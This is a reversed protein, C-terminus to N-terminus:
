SAPSDEDETDHRVSAPNLARLQEQARLSVADALEPTDRWLSVLARIRDATTVRDAYRAGALADFDDQTLDITIRKPYGAPRFNHGV